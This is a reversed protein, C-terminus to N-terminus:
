LTVQNATRGSHEYLNLCHGPMEAVHFAGNCSLFADFLGMCGPIDEPTPHLKELRAVEQKTVTEFNLGSM